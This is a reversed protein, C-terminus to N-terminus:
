NNNVISHKHTPPPVSPSHSARVTPTELSTEADHCMTEKTLTISMMTQKLLGALPKLRSVAINLDHSILAPIKVVLAM